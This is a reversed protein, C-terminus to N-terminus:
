TRATVADLLVTYKPPAKMATLPWGRVRSPATVSDVPATVAQAGLASSLVTQDIVSAGSRVRTITPPAKVVRLPVGALPMPLRLVSEPCCSGHAALWTM